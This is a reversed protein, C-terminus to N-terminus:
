LRFLPFRPFFYTPFASSISFMFSYSLSTLTPFSSLVSPISSTCFPPFASFASLTPFKPHPFRFIHFHHYSSPIISYFSGPSSLYVSFLIFSSLILPITCFIPSFPFVSPIIIISLLSPLFHNLHYFLSPFISTSFPSFFPFQPFTLFASLHLNILTQGPIRLNLTRPFRTALTPFKLTLTLTPIKLTLTKQNLIVPTPIIPTLTLIKLPLILIEPTLTPIKLILNLTLIGLPPTKQHPSQANRLGTILEVM